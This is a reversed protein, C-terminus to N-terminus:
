PGTSEPPTTDAVVFAQMRLFLATAYNTLLAEVKAAPATSAYFNAYSAAPAGSFGGDLLAKMEGVKTTFATLDASIGSRAVDTYTTMRDTIYGAQEVSLLPKLPSEPDAQRNIEKLATTLTAANIAYGKCYARFSIAAHWRDSAKWGDTKGITNAFPSIKVAGCAPDMVWGFATIPATTYSDEIYGNEGASSLKYLRTQHTGSTTM